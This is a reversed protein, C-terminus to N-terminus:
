PRAQAQEWERAQERLAFCLELAPRAQDLTPGLGAFIAGYASQHLGELDAELGIDHGRVRLRRWSGTVGPPLEAPDISLRFAVRARALELQGRVTRATSGHIHISQSPTPFPPGFLWLLADLFHVGINTALGGSREPDGKWSQDYWPGRPTVYDLEVEARPGSTPLERALGALAPHYRLQLIPHVQRGAEATLASIRTFEAMSTVLPKECVVDAGLSLGHEIHRAHLHNPSCVVLTDIGKGDRRQDALYGLCSEEDVFYRAGLAYRDLIGVSDHPDVAAVVRGGLTAIAELHRRAVFGAVGFLAFRAKAM